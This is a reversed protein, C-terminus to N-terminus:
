VKAKKHHSEAPILKFLIGNLIYANVVYSVPLVHLISYFAELKNFKKRSFNTGKNNIIMIATCVFSYYLYAVVNFCSSSGINKMSILKQNESVNHM